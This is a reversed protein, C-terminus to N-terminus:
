VLSGVPEAFNENLHVHEMLKSYVGKSTLQHRKSLLVTMMFVLYKFAM